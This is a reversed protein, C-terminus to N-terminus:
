VRAAVLRQYEDAAKDVLGPSSDATAPALSDLPSPAQGAIPAVPLNAQKRREETLRTNVIGTIRDDEAKKAIEALRTGHMLQYVGEIGYIRGTEPNVQSVRPDRVLDRVRIVEGFTKFHQFALTNATDIFEVAGMERQDLIKDLDAKRVAEAPLVTALDAASPREPTWGAEIAKAGVELARKNGEYWTTLDAHNKNLTATQANLDNLRASHDQRRLIGDGAYKIADAAEPKDFIPAVVARDAESLKGLLEQLAQKGAAVVDAM